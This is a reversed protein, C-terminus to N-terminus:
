IIQPQRTAIVPDIYDKEIKLDPPLAEISLEKIADELSITQSDKRGLRRLNVSRDKIEKDGM